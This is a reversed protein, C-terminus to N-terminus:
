AHGRRRPLKLDCIGSLSAAAVSVSSPCACAARRCSHTCECQQLTHWPVQCQNRTHCAQSVVAIAALVQKSAGNMMSRNLARTIQRSDSQGLRRAPGQRQIVREMQTLVSDISSRQSLENLLNRSVNAPTKSGLEALKQKNPNYARPQGGLLPLVAPACTDGDAHATMNTAAELAADSLAQTARQQRINLSLARWDVAEPKSAGFTACKWNFAAAKGLLGAMGASLDTLSDHLQAFTTATSCMQGRVEAPQAIKACAVQHPVGETRAKLEAVRATEEAEEVAKREAEERQVDKLTKRWRAAAVSALPTVSNHHGALEPDKQQFAATMFKEIWYASNHIRQQEAHEAQEREVQRTRALLQLM